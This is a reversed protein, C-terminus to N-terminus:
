LRDAVRRALDPIRSLPRPSSPRQAARAVSMRDGDGPVEHRLRALCSLGAALGIVLWVQKRNGLIDLFLALTLLSALAAQVTAADPGWGRRRVLPLVLLLLLLLGVPGLEILTGVVANHPGRGPLILSTVNSARVLEPTYSVPFNSYGVGLVPATAYIRAAVSWIDTRGAGGTSVASGTREALLDPVGPLQYMGVALALALAVAVVRRRPPLQPLVLLAVVVLVAVWAGRTGSVLVAVATIATIAGGLL